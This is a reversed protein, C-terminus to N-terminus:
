RLRRGPKTARRASGCHGSMDASQPSTTMTAHAGTAPAAGLVDGAAGRRPAAGTAAAPGTGHTVRRECGIRSRLAIGHRSDPETVVDLLWLRTGLRGAPARPHPEADEGGYGKDQQGYGLATLV